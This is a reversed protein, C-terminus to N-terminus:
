GRGPLPLREANRGFWVQPESPPSVQERAETREICTRLRTALDRWTAAAQWNEIVCGDFFNYTYRFSCGFSSRDRRAAMLIARNDRMLAPSIMSGSFCASIVIPAPREGCVADVLQALAQPNLTGPPRGFALLGPNGHSTLYFLCHDGPQAPAAEAARRITAANTPGVGPPPTTASSFRRIQGGSSAVLDRLTGTANDFVPDRDNGGILYAQWHPAVPAPSTPGPSMAPQACAALLTFLLLTLPWREPPHRSTM